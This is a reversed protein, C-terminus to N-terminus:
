HKLHRSKKVKRKNVLYLYSHGTCTLIDLNWFFAQIDLNWFFAQFFVVHQLEVVQNEGLKLWATDEPMKTGRCRWVIHPGPIHKKRKCRGCATHTSFVATCFVSAFAVVVLQKRNIIKTLVRPWTSTSHNFNRESLPPWRSKRTKQSKVPKGTWETPWTWYLLVPWLKGALSVLSFLYSMFIDTIPRLKRVSANWSTM